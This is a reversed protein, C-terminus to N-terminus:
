KHTQVQSSFMGSNDLNGHEEEGMAAGGLLERELADLEQAIQSATHTCLTLAM